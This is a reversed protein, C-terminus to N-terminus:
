IYIYIYIYINIYAYKYIDYIFYIYLVYYLVYIHKNIYLTFYWNSTGIFWPTNLCPLFSYRCDHIIMHGLAHTAVFGNHHFVPLCMTKM